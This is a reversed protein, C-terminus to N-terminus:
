KMGERNAMLPSEHCKVPGKRGFGNVAKVLGGEHNESGTKPSKRSETEPRM